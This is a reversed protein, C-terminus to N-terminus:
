NAKESNIPCIIKNIKHRFGWIKLNQLKSYFPLKTLAAKAYPGMYVAASFSKVM